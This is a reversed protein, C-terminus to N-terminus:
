VIIKIQSEAICCINGERQAEVMLQFVADIGRKASNISKLTACVRMKSGTRLPSRFEVNGLGSNVIMRYDGSMKKILNEIQILNPLLSLIFYGHVITGRFPSDQRARVPDVHIWQEDGTVQAFNNVMEQTVYLWESTSLSHGLYLSMNKHLALIRSDGLAAIEPTAGEGQEVDSFRIYEALSRHVRHTIGDMLSRVPLEWQDRFKAQKDKLLQSAEKLGDM